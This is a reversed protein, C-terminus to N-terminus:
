GALPWRAKPSIDLSDPPFQKMREIGAWAIMAANDTCLKVPPVAFEMHKKVAQAKLRERLYTNAAVGGALVMAREPGYEHIFTKYAHELRNELIDGVTKQFSAAIDAQQRESLQQSDGAEEMICKRVATKLGSFSFDCGPEGCLPRPFLFKDYDGKRALREIHPGGPYPLGMMKATKDFAEGL